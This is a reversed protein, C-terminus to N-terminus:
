SSPCAPRGRAARGTVELVTVRTLAFSGFRGSRLVPDSTVRATLTVAAGQEALVAVPSSGNAEIRLATVGGVAAAAVVCAALTLVPRGRRRRAVLLVAALAVLVLWTQDPLGLVVLGGAWASVGLVVARLDPPPRPEERAAAPPLAPM